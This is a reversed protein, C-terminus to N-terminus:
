EVDELRVKYLSELLRGASKQASKGEKQGSARNGFLSVSVLESVAVGVKVPILKVLVLAVEMECVLAQLVLTAAREDQGMVVVKLGVWDPQRFTVNLKKCDVLLHNLGTQSELDFVRIWGNGGGGDATSFDFERYRLFMRMHNAPLESLFM